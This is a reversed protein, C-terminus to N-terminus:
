QFAKRFLTGVYLDHICERKVNIDIVQKHQYIM